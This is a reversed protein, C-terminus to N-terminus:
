KTEEKSQNNSMEELQTQGYAKNQLVKNRVNSVTGSLEGTVMCGNYFPCWKASCLFWEPKKVYNEKEITDEAIRIREGLQRIDELDPQVEVTTAYEFGKRSVRTTRTVMYVMKPLEVIEPFDESLVLAASYMAAQYRHGEDSKWRTFDKATKHDVIFVEGSANDRYIADIYGGIPRANDVFPLTFEPEIALPTWSLVKPRHYEYWNKVAARVLLLLENRLEPEEITESILKTAEDIMEKETTNINKIRNLEHMEVVSHFAIGVAAYPKVGQDMELVYTLFYQWSCGDLLNSLTSQHWRTKRANVSDSQIATMM